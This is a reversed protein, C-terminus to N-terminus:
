KKQLEGLTQLQPLYEERYAHLVQLFRRFESADKTKDGTDKAMAYDMLSLDLMKEEGNWSYSLRLPLNKQQLNRRIAMLDSFYEANDFFAKGSDGIMLSGDTIRRFFTVRDRTTTAILDQMQQKTEKGTTRLILTKLLYATLIEERMNQNIKEVKKMTERDERDITSLDKTAYRWARAFVSEGLGAEHGITTYGYGIERLKKLLDEPTESLWEKSSKEWQIISDYVANTYVSTGVYFPLVAFFQPGSLALMSLGVAGQGALTDRKSELIQKAGLNGSAAAESIEAENLGLLIADVIPGLYPLIKAGRALMRSVKLLQQAKTNGAKGADELLSAYKTLLQSLRSTDKEMKADKIYKLLDDFTKMSEVAAEKALPAGKVVATKALGYSGRIVRGTMRAGGAGLKVMGKGGAKLALVGGKYTGYAIVGGAVIGLLALLLLHMSIGLQKHGFDDIYRDVDLHIGVVTHFDQLLERYDSDYTEWNAQLQMFCMKIVVPATYKGILQDINGATVPDKPLTAEDIEEDGLFNEAQLDPRAILAKAAGVSTQLKQMSQKERFRQIVKESGDQKEELEKRESATLDKWEKPQGTVPDRPWGLTDYLGGDMLYGKAADRFFTPHGIPADPILVTELTAIRQAMRTIFIRGKENWLTEAKEPLGVKLVGEDVMRLHTDVSQIAASQESEFMARMDDITDQPTKGPLPGAEADLAYGQDFHHRVFSLKARHVQFRGLAGNLDALSDVNKRGEERLKEFIGAKAKIATIDLKYGQLSTYGVSRLVPEVEEVTVERLDKGPFAHELARQTEDAREKAKQFGEGAVTKYKGILSTYEQRLAATMLRHVPLLGQPNAGPLTPDQCLLLRVLERDYQLAQKLLQQRETPHDKIQSAVTVRNAAAAQVLQLHAFVVAEQAPEVAIGREKMGKYLDLLQCYVDLSKSLTERSTIRMQAALVERREELTLERKQKDAQTLFRVVQRRDADSNVDYLEMLSVPQGRNLKEVFLASRRNSEKEDWKEDEHIETAADGVIKRAKELIPTVQTVERKEPANLTPEQEGM